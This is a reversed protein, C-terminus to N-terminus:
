LTSDNSLKLISQGLLSPLVSRSGWPSYSLKSVVVGSTIVGKSAFKYQSAAGETSIVSKGGARSEHEFGDGRSAKTGQLDIKLNASHRIACSIEFIGIFHDGEFQECFDLM